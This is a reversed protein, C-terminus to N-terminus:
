HVLGDGDVLAASKLLALPAASAAAFAATLLAASPRERGSRRRLLRSSHAFLVSSAVSPPAAIASEVVVIIHDVRRQHRACRTSRDSPAEGEVSLAIPVDRSRAAMKPPPRTVMLTPHAASGSFGWAPVM